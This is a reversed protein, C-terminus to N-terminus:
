QDNTSQDNTIQDIGQEEDLNTSITWQADPDEDAQFNTLRFYARCSGVTVPAQGDPHVLVGNKAIQNIKPAFTRFGFALARFVFALTRLLILLFSARAEKKISGRREHNRDVQL